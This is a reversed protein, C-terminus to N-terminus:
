LYKEPNDTLKYGWPPLTLGQPTLKKRPEYNAIKSLVSKFLAYGEELAPSSFRYYAVEFPATNAIVLHSFETIPIDFVQFVGECYQGASLHYNYDIVDKSFSDLDHNKSTKYDYIAIEKNIIRFWDPRCKLKIGTEQDIWFFSVEPYGDIFLDIESTKDYLNKAMKEVNEIEHEPLVALEPNNNKTERWAKSNITKTPSEVIFDNFLDLTGNTALGEIAVHLAAGRELALSDRHPQELEYYFSEISRLVHKLTTSGYWHKFDHYIHNPMGSYCQGAEPDIGEHWNIINIM